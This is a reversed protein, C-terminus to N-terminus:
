PSFHAGFCHHCSPWTQHREGARPQSQELAVPCISDERLQDVRAHGQLLSIHAKPFSHESGRAARGVRAPDACESAHAQDPSSDNRHSWQQKGGQAVSLGSSPVAQVLRMEIRMEAKLQTVMRRAAVPNMKGFDTHGKAETPNWLEARHTRISGCERCELRCPSVEDVAGSEFYTHGREKAHASSEAWWCTARFCSVDELAPHRQQVTWARLVEQPM